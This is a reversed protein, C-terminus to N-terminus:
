SLATLRPGMEDGWDLIGLVRRLLPRAARVVLDGGRGRLETRAVLLISICRADFFALERCDVVVRRIGNESCQRLTDALLPATAIDAEGFLGLVITGHGHHTEVSLHEHSNAAGDVNAPCAQAGSAPDISAPEDPLDFTSHEEM